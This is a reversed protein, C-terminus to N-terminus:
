GAAGRRRALRQRSRRGVDAPDGPALRFGSPQAPRPRVRPPELEEPDIVSIAAMSADTEMCSNCSSGIQLYLRGDPGFEITRRPHQGGEPLDDIVAHLESIGGDEAIRGEYIENVTALYIRGDRLAIGHVTDLGSAVVRPEGDAQGDGDQTACRSWTTPRPRPHRLGHRGRDVALMRPNGLDEAFVGVAFGAPVKSRPGCSRPPM